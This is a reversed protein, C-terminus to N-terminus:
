FAFPFVEQSIIVPGAGVGFRLQISLNRPTSGSLWTISEM